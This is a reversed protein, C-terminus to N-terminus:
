RPHMFSNSVPGCGSRTDRLARILQTDTKEIAKRKPDTLVSPFWSARLDVACVLQQGPIWRGVTSLLTVNSLHPRLALDM